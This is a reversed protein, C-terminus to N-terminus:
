KLHDLHASMELISRMVGREFLGDSLLSLLRKALMVRCEEQFRRRNNILARQIEQRSSTLIEIINKNIEICELATHVNFRADFTGVLFSRIHKNYFLSELLRRADVGVNKTSEISFIEIFEIGSVNRKLFQCIKEVQDSDISMELANLNTNYMLADFL